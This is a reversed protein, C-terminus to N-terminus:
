LSGQQSLSDRFCLKMGPYPPHTCCAAHALLWVPWPRPPTSNGETAHVAVGALVALVVLTFTLRAMGFSLAPLAKSSSKREPWTADLLM